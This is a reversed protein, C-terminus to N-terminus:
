KKNKRIKLNFFIDYGFAWNSLEGLKIIKEYGANPYQRNHRFNYNTRYAPNPIMGISDWFGSSADTDISLETNSNLNSYLYSYKSNKLFCLMTAILLRALGKGKITIGKYNKEVSISMDNAGNPFKSIEFRGILKESSDLDESADMLYISPSSLSSVTLNLKFNHAKIFEISNAIKKFKELKNRCKELLEESLQTSSELFNNILSKINSCEDKDEM